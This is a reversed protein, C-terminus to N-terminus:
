NYLSDSIESIYRETNERMSNPGVIGQVTPIMVNYPKGLTGAGGACLTNAGVAGALAMVATGVSFVLDLNSILAALNDQDDKLDLDSFNIFRDGLTSHILEIEEDTYDYQLNVVTCQLDKFIEVINEASLYSYDRMDGSVGSRWCVGVTKNDTFKNIQQKWFDAKKDDPFLHAKRYKGQEFENQATTIEPIFYKGLSLTLIEADYENFNVNYCVDIPDDGTFTLSPFSQQMLNLLRKEIHITASINQEVLLRFLWSWIFQDGIGQERWVFINKDKIDKPYRLRGALYPQSMGVRSEYFDFAKKLQGSTLLKHGYNMRFLPEDPCLALVKEYVPISIEDGSHIALNTLAQVNEPERKLIYNNVFRGKVPNLEHSMHFHAVEGLVAHKDEKAKLLSVFYNRADKIRGSGALSNAFVLKIGIPLSKTVNIYQEFELVALFERNKYLHHILRNKYEENDEDLTLAYNMYEIAKELNGSEYFFRAMYDYIAPYYLKKELFHYCITLVQKTAKLKYCIFLMREAIAINEPDLNNLEEYIILAENWKQHEELLLACYTGCNVDNKNLQYGFSFAEYALELDELKICLTGLQFYSESTPRGRNIKKLIRKTERLVPLFEPEYGSGTRIITKINRELSKTDMSTEQINNLLDIKTPLFGYLLKFFM